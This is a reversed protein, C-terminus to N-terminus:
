AARDSKTQYNFRVSPEASNPGIVGFFQAALKAERYDEKSLESSSQGPETSSRRFLEHCKSKPFKTIAAALESESPQAVPAAAATKTGYFIARLEKGASTGNERDKADITARYETDAVYLRAQEKTKADPGEIEKLLAKDRDNM